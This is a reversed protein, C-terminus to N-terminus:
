ATCNWGSTACVGWPIVIRRLKTSAHPARRAHDIADNTSVVTADIRFVTPSSRTSQASDPPTSEDTTAASTWRAIPSRSVHTNTSM